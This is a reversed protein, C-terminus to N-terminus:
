PSTDTSTTESRQGFRTLMWRNAALGTSTSLVGLLEIVRQTPMAHHFAVIGLSPPWSDADNPAELQALQDAIADMSATCLQSTEPCAKSKASGKQATDPWQAGRGSVALRGNPDVADFGIRLTPLGTDSTSEIKPLKVPALASMVALKGDAGSSSARGVLHLRFIGNAALQFIATHVRQWTVEAAVILDTSGAADDGGMAGNIWRAAHRSLSQSVPGGTEGTVPGFPTVTLSPTMIVPFAPTRQQAVWPDASADPVNPLGDGIVDTLTQIYTGRPAWDINWRDSADADTQEELVLPYRFHYGRHVAEFEVLFQTTSAGRQPLREAVLIDRLTVDEDALQTLRPKEAHQITQRVAQVMRDPTDAAHAQETTLLLSIGIILTGLMGSIIGSFTFIKRSM